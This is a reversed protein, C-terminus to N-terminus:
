AERQSKKRENIKGEITVVDGAKIIPSVTINWKGYPNFNMKNEMAILAYAICNNFQCPTIEITGMSGDDHLKGDRFHFNATIALVVEKLEDDDISDYSNSIESDYNVIDM